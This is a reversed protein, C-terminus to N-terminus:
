QLAPQVHDSMIYVSREGHAPARKKSRRKRQDIWWRSTNNSVMPSVMVCAQPSSNLVLLYVKIINSDCKPVHIYKPILGLFFPLPFFTLINKNPYHIQSLGEGKIDLELGFSIQLSTINLFPRHNPRSSSLFGCLKSEMGKMLLFSFYM